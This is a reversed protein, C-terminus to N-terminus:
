QFLPPPPEKLELYPDPPGPLDALHGAYLAWYMQYLYRDRHFLDEPTLYLGYTEQGCVHGSCTQEASTAIVTSRRFRPDLPERWAISHTPVVYVFTSYYSPAEVIRGVVHGDEIRPPYPCGVEVFRKPFFRAAWDPDAAVIEDLTSEIIDKATEAYTPDVDVAEVCVALEGERRPPDNSARTAVGRVDQSDGGSGGVVFVAVALGLAVAAVVGIAAAVILGRPWM